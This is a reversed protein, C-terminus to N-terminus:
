KAKKKKPKEAEREIFEEYREALDFTYETIAYVFSMFDEVDDRSIDFDEDPHAAINRFAQLKQCWDFLRKDIIGKELLKKIGEGMMIKKKAPKETGAKPDPEEHKRLHHRCIAELTRGLLICAGTYASVQFSREAESISDTVIKPINRSQFTKPPNPYVRVVASWEEYEAGEDLFSVQKSEGALISDCKPCVGVHVRMGFPENFDADGRRGTEEARGTENAAVKARCVPCDIIFTPQKPEKGM